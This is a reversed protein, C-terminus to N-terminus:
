RIAGLDLYKGSSLAAKEAELAQIRDSEMQRQQLLRNRYEEVNNQALAEELIRVRRDALQLYIADAALEAVSAVPGVVKSGAAKSAVALIGVLGKGAKEWDEQTREKKLTLAQIDYAGTGVDKLDLLSEVKKSAKGAAEKLFFSGLDQLAQSRERKAEQLEEQLANRIKAAGTKEGAEELFQLRREATQQRKKAAALSEDLEAMRKKVKEDYLAQAQEDTLDTRGFLVWGLKLRLEKSGRLDVAGGQSPPAASPPEQPAKGTGPAAPAAPAPTGKPELPTQTPKAGGALRELGDLVLNVAKVMGPVTTAMQMLQPFTYGSVERLRADLAARDSASLSGYVQNLANKSAVLMASDMAARTKADASQYLSLMNSLEKRVAQAAAILEGYRSECFSVGPALGVLVLV